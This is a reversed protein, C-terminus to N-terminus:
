QEPEDVRRRLRARDRREELMQGRRIRDLQAEMQEAVVHLAMVHGIRLRDAACRFAIGLRDGLEQCHGALVGIRVLALAQLEGHVAVL